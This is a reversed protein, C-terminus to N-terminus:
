RVTVPLSQGAYPGVLHGVQTPGTFGNVVLAVKGVLATPLSRPVTVRVTTRGKTMQQSLLTRRASLSVLAVKVLSPRSSNITVTFQRGRRVVTPPSQFRTGITSSPKMAIYTNCNGMAMWIRSDPALAIGAWQGATNGQGFSGGATPFITIAGATTIRGMAGSGLSFWLTNSGAPGPTIDQPATPLGIPWETVVGAPTMRGISTTGPDTFWLNGDPGTTIGLPASKPNPLPFTNVQGSTTIRSISSEGSVSLAFVPAATFWLAGDPGATIDFPKPSVAPFSTMTGTPTVRTILNATNQTFWANGDAGVAIGGIPQWAGPIDFRVAGTGDAHMWGVGSTSPGIPPLDAFWVDGAQDVALPGIGTAGPVPLAAVNGSGTFKLVSGTDTSAWLGGAGSALYILPTAAVEGDHTIGPAIFCGALGFATTPVAALTGVAAAIGLVKARRPISVGM